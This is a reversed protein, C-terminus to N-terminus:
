PLALAWVEVYWSEQAPASKANALIYAHWDM